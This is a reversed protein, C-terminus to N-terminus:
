GEHKAKKLATLRGIIGDYQYTAKLIEKAVDIAVELEDKGVQEYVQSELHAADNGLLRLEDLGDLLAQPLVVTSGLAEIRKKLNTGSAGRDACIEELTKRVMIAAAVYCQQAHCKIAEEFADVVRAPIDTSDFDLTEAPYTAVAVSGSARPELVVFLHARCDRNGCKRQGTYVSGVSQVDIFADSFGLSEFTVDRRCIPCRLNVPAAAQADATGTIPSLNVVVEEQTSGL